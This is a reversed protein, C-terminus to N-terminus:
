RVPPLREMGPPLMEAVRQTFALGTVRPDPQLPRLLDAAERHSVLRGERRVRAILANLEPVAHWQKQFGLGNVRASLEVGPVPVSANGFYGQADLGHILGDVEAIPVDLAWASEIGDGYAMGPLYDRTVRRVGDLWGGAKDAEGASPDAVVVEALAYGKRGNPHPYKLSLLQMKQPVMQRPTEPTYSVLQTESAAPPAQALPQPDLRYTIAASAFTEHAAAKAGLQTEGSRLAACGTLTAALGIAILSRRCHHAFANMRVFENGTQRRKRDRPEAFHGELFPESQSM